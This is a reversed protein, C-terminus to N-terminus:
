LFSGRGGKQKGGEARKARQRAERQERGKQQLRRIQRRFAALHLSVKATIGSVAKQLEERPKALKRVGRKAADQM